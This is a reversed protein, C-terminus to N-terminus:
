RPVRFLRADPEVNVKLDADWTSLVEVTQNVQPLAYRQKTVYRLFHHDISFYAEYTGAPGNLELDRLTGTIAYAEQERIKVKGQLQMTQWQAMLLRLDDTRGIAVDLIANKDIISKKSALYIDQVTQTRENQTVKEVFREPGKVNEPRNYSFIEGDSVVLTNQNTGQRAQRLYLKSPKHYQIETQFTISTNQAQQVFVIRGSVSEAESYLHLAKQVIQTATEQAPTAGPALVVLAVLTSLM